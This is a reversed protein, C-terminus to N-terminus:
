ELVSFAFLRDFLDYLHEIKSDTFRNCFENELYNIKIPFNGIRLLNFWNKERNNFENEKNPFENLNL